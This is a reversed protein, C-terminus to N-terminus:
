LSCHSIVEAAYIGEKWKVCGDMYLMLAERKEIPANHKCWVGPVGLIYLVRGSAKIYRGIRMWVVEVIKEVGGCVGFIVMLVSRLLVIEAILWCESMASLVMWVAAAAFSDRM